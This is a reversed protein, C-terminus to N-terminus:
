SLVAMACLPSTGCPTTLQYRRVSRVLQKPQKDCLRLPPLRVKWIQDGIPHAWSTTSCCNVVCPEILHAAQLMKLQEDVVDEKGNSKGGDFLAAPLMRLIMGRCFQAGLVAACRMIERAVLPIRQLQAQVLARLSPPTRQEDRLWDHNEVVEAMLIPGDAAQLLGEQELRKCLEAIRIPM